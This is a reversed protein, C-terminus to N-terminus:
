LKVEQRECADMFARWFKAQEVTIASLSIGWILQYLLSLEVRTLELHFVPPPQDRTIIM